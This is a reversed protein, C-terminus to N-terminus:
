PLYILGSSHDHIAGTVSSLVNVENRYKLVGLLGFIVAEKYEVIKQEPIIVISSKSYQKLCNLLFDNYAGGGTILIKSGKNQIVRSIQFAMHNCLTHLKDEISCDFKEVVPLLQAELWEIGLSKPPQKSYFELQNLHKFLDSQLNGKSALQGKDDYDYGRKSAYFNLAKNAPCIDFAKRHGKNEFSINVFGGINICYDYESFLMRDGLPVLPAGQGGLKVDATRFDCVLAKGVQKALKPLNGIQYTIGDDPQHLITHGHSCILDIEDSSQMFESIVGALYDTYESDTKELQVKDLQHASSLIKLWKQPYPQTKAKLIYFSWQNKKLKFEVECLDIGDLSTGSMVGIVRYKQTKM